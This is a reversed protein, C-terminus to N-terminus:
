TRSRGARSAACGRSPLTGRCGRKMPEQGLFVNQAVTMYQALNFEQYVTVIGAALADNPGSWSVPEGDMFLQGADPQYVGALHKVLTSKGAGNEGLLVHVEGPRVAFDVGDLAKVGPFAKSLGRAELLARDSSSDSM